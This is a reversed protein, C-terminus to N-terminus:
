VQGAAKVKSFRIRFIKQQSLELDVDLGLMEAMADVLSLGLGAYDGDTRSPDKRWFRERMRAVDEPDLSVVPNSIEVTVSHPVDRTWAASISADGPSYEIANVLVNRLMIELLDRDSRVRLGQPGSSVLKKTTETVSVASRWATEVLTSLEFESVNVHLLGADARALQLLSTVLAEMKRAIDGVDEFFAKAKEPDEPLTRAVEALTKLEAVPTRLEHAVDSSFRKERDFGDALRRLMRDLQQEIPALEVSRVGGHVPPRKLRNVDINEIGAAFRYLPRMGRTVIRAVLIGIVGLVILLAGVINIRNLRKIRDLSERERALILTAHLIKPHRTDEEAVQLPEGDEDDDDTEVQPTFEIQVLRGARGDPLKVDEIRYQNVALDARPLDAQALNKSRAFSQGDVFIQFYQPSSRTDFEPMLEDAFNFELEGREQEMLTAFAQAKSLLTSDFQAGLQSSMRLDLIAAAAFLVVASSAIISGIM